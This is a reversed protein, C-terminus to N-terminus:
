ASQKLDMRPIQLAEAEGCPLGGHPLVRTVMGELYIPYGWCDGYTVIQILQPEDWRRPAQVPETISRWVRDVLAMREGVSRAWVALHLRKRDALSLARTIRRHGPFSHSLLFALAEEEPSPEIDDDSSLGPTRVRRTDRLDIYGDSAFRM